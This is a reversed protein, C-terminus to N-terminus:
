MAAGADLVDGRGEGRGAGLLVRDEVAEVADGRVLRRDGRQEARDAALDGVGLLAGVVAVAARSRTAAATNPV